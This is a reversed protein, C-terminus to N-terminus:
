DMRYINHIVQVISLLASTVITLNFVALVSPLPAVIFLAELHFQEFSIRCTIVADRM